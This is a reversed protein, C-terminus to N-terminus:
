PHAPGASRGIWSSAGPGPEDQTPRGPDNLHLLMLEIEETIEEQRLLNRQQGLERVQGEIRELAGGLHRVRQQHEAMLSSYLLAHLAAFLYQEILAALLTEPALNLRPPFPHAPGPAVAPDRFPPLLPVERVAETEADWHIVVLAPLDHERTVRGLAHVLRSLVAPVEEAAAAGRLGDALRPDAELLSVLRAGVAVLAHRGGASGVARSLEALVAQNFSGCFGREAGILVYLTGARRPAHLLEPHHALLDTAAAEIGAVVRRQSDIFRALKRTEMYSLNKMSEMIKGIDELSSLRKELDRRRSM